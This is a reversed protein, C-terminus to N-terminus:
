DEKDKKDDDKNEGIAKFSDEKIKEVANDGFFTMNDLHTKNKNKDVVYVTPYAHVGFEDAIPHNEDKECNVYAIAFNKKIEKDKTVKHFTPAFRQCYGCWDTYFFVIMPKETKLAKEYSKGKDYQTSIVVKKEGGIGGSVLNYISTGLSLISIILSMVVLIALKKCNCSHEEQHMQQNEESM